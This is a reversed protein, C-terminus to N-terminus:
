NQHSSSTHIKLTLINPLTQFFEEVDCSRLKTFTDDVYRDTGYHPNTELQHFLKKRLSMWTSTLWQQHCLLGWPQVRNRNISRASRVLYTNTLCLNLIKGVQPPSLESCDALSADDEKLKCQIVSMVWDVPIDTFFTSVDYSLTSNSGFM